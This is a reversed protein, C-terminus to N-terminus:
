KYNFKNFKYAKTDRPIYNKNLQIKNNKLEEYKYNNNQYNIKTDFNYVNIINNNIDYKLNKIDNINDLMNEKYYWTDQLSLLKKNNNTNINIINKDHIHYFNSYDIKLNSNKARKLMENDELGWGWLNPFGKTKEFDSGKISFIGGLVHKFGFYHKITGHTTDYNLLNKQSPVTDVDNFIININKYDNPYLDKIVLFGINKIGGRNFPRKDCQHVFYIKYSNIDYDELIYKMYVTYHIKEPERNRYPIIFIYKPIM